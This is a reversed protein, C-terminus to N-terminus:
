GVLSAVDEVFRRVKEVERRLLEPDIIGDHFAMQHLYRERAGYRDRLGLKEVEPEREEILDLLRRREWHSAPVIGTRSLVLANAASVVASWLKEAGDRVKLADGERLGEELERAGRELFSRADELLARLRERVPEGVGASPAAAALLM